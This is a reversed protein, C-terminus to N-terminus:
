RSTTASFCFSSTRHAVCSWRERRDTSEMEVGFASPAASLPLRPEEGGSKTVSAVDCLDDAGRAGRESFTRARRTEGHM